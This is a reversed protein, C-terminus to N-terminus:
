HNHCHGCKCDNKHDKLDEEDPIYEVNKLAEKVQDKISDIYIRRVEAQEKKEADTLGETRQKRSLFNIRELIEKTVM